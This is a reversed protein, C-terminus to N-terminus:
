KFLVYPTYCVDSCGARPGWAEKSMYACQLNIPSMCTAKGQPTDGAHDPGKGHGARAWARVQLRCPEKGM